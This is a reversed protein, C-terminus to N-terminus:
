FFASQKKKKKEPDIFEVEMRDFPVDEVFHEKVFRAQSFQEWDREHKPLILPRSVDLKHCAADLAEQWESYACEVTTDKEIHTKRMLRVWIGAAM